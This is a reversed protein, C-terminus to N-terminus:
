MYSKIKISGISYLYKDNESLFAKYMCKWGFNQNTLIGTNQSLIFIQFHCNYQLHRSYPNHM